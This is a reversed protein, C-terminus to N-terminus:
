EDKIIKELISIITDTDLHQDIVLTKQDKFSLEIDNLSSVKAYNTSSNM